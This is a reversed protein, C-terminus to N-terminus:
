PLQINMKKYVEMVMQLEGDCQDDTWNLEKAMVGAITQLVTKAPCGCSGLESRRLVMDTLHCAMEERISFLVEALIFPPDDVLLKQSGPEEALIQYIAGAQEGYRLALHPVTDVPIHLRNNKDIEAVKSTATRSSNPLFDKQELMIELDRAIQLATTYKVGRISILSNKENRSQHDIIESHKLLRPDGGPENEKLPHIPVLGLHSFIVDKKDLKAAPYIKNVEAVMDEIDNQGTFLETESLQCHNYTTGIMTKGRWPVFFFLRKGSNIVVDKDSYEHSGEIGVAYEGFFNRDVVINVAKALAGAPTDASTVNVLDDLWPGACNIVIKSRISFADGHLLDDVAVEQYTGRDTVKEATVYNALIAGNEAAQHLLLLLMRESNLLLADYWLASGNIRTSGLGPIHKKTQVRNLIRGGPLHKDKNLGRNRDFSIIDNLLLAIRMATKGKIGLGKTPMLCPLPSVLHPALQMFERRARISERMRKFDIHQLYRLGGHLIKLSNFSTARCFDNKEVLAVDYGRIALKRAVAAGHIGGGIILLDFLHDKLKDCNRKM